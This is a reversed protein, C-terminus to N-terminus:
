SAAKTSSSPGEILTGRCKTSSTHSFGQDANATQLRLNEQHKRHQARNKHKAQTNQIGKTAITALLKRCHEGLVQCNRKNAM